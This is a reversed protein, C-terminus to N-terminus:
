PHRLMIGAIAHAAIATVASAPTISNAFGVLWTTPHHGHNRNVSEIPGLGDDRPVHACPRDTCDIGPPRIFPDRAFKAHFRASYALPDAIATVAGLAQFAESIGPDVEHTTTTEGGAPAASPAATIRERRRRRAEWESPHVMECVRGPKPRRTAFPPKPGLSVPPPVSRRRGQGEPMRPDTFDPPM